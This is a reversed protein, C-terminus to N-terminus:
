LKEGGVEIILNDILLNMNLNYKITEKIDILKAIKTLIKAESNTEIKRLVDEYDSFYNVELGQKKKLVEYYINIMLDFAMISAQRDKFKDHWIKKAYIITDLNNNELFSIFEIADRIINNYLTDDKLIEERPVHFINVYKDLKDGTGVKNKKLSLVQCRSVITKLVQNINNTMLIAIINPTPEELFKLISNATAGNMKECDDIIYIKKNGEIAKMSFEEQLKVIQEKKIWMGDPRIVKIEIYNGDDIRNCKNCSGCNGFATLHHPCIIAKVFSLVIKMAEINDNKEILYAHSLKNNIIANNVINYFINQTVKYDDLM